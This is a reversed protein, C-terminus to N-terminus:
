MNDSLQYPVYEPKWVQHNIARELDVSDDIGAVGEKKAQEAVALAIAKSIEMINKFDPLLPQSPDEKAPSFSALTQCAVWLMEDSVYKAKAALVGLGLGPYSLANNSQSIRYEKDNYTVPKFPSGTAILAKGKTWEYLDKPKAESRSTPNSLPLIIPHEHHQAMTEVIEKTFADTQASCGILIAPKIQKVTELLSIKGDEKHWGNAESPDRAYPEQFDVLNDMDSLLLGQVDILWFNKRAETESLGLSVMARCIQDTIGVGATGAGMVVIKQETLKGKAANVGSLLCALAVTGTGQMDDNFSCIYERYKNLNKRANDRGFDEWHLYVHPFVKKVAHVFKEIFQDYDKGRIRPNRWGVYDPDQLREENNTGVDLVIPLVHNPNVGACATYVMLKGIPIEIGGVGQDGIGLIGEADTVVILRIDENERESLVDYIIDQDQYCIFMGRPSRLETSYTEVANGITPTYVIPMLEDLHLQLVKYFLTMNIDFIHNMFIFKAFDDTEEQLQEYARRAQDELTEHHYPLLGNLKFLQREEQSFASGKNLEPCRLLDLGTLKTTIHTIHGNDDRIRKFNKFNMNM